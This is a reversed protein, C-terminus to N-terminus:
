IYYSGHLTIFAFIHLIAVASVLGAAALALAAFAQSIM